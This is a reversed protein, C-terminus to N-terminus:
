QHCATCDTSAKIHKDKLNEPPQATYQRHCNVCWGMALSSAQEVEVMEQVPGHCTQCALGRNVHRSHDFTVFDPLNHVKVWEISKGSGFAAHVKKIEPSDARVVAHCNMCVNVPPIGARKSKEAGFHCYKCDMKLDGAHLKHSFSVPQIPKYGKNYGPVTYDTYDCGALGACALLLAAVVGLRTSNSLIM